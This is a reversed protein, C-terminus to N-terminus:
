NLHSARELMSLQLLPLLPGVPRLSLMMFVNLIKVVVLDLHRPTADGARRNLGDSGAIALEEALGSGGHGGTDSLEPLLERTNGLNM